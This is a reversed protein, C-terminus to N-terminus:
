RRAKRQDLKIRALALLVLLPLAVAGIAVQALAVDPAAYGFFVVALMLGYWSLTVIQRMTDRTRVVAPAGVLVMLLGIARLLDDVGM